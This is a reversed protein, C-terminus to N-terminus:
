DLRGYTGSLTTLSACTCIANMGGAGDGISDGSGNRWGMSCRIGSESSYRVGTNDSSGSNCNWFILSSSTGLPDRNM